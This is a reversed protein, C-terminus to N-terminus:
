GDVAVLVAESILYDALETLDAEILSKEADFEASVADVAENFSVGQQISKIFASGSDNTSYLQGSEVMLIIGEGGLDRFSASPSLTLKRDNPTM